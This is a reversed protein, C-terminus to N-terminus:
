ALMSFTWGVPAKAPATMSARMAMKTRAIRPPLSSLPDRLHRDREGRDGLAVSIGNSEVVYAQVHGLPREGRKQARAPAALGRQKPDDGAELLGVGAGDLDVTLVQCVDGHALATHAEAELM